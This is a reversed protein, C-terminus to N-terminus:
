AKGDPNFRELQMIWLSFVLLWTALDFREALVMAFSGFASGFILILDTTKRKM